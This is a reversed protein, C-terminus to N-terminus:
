DARARATSITSNGDGHPIQVSFVANGDRLNRVSSKMRDMMCIGCPPLLTYIIRLRGKIRVERWDVYKGRMKAICDWMVRRCIGTAHILEEKTPASELRVDSFSALAMIIAKESPSLDPNGLFERSVTVRWKAPRGM